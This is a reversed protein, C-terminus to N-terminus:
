TSLINLHYFLILVKDYNFSVFVETATNEGTIGVDITADSFVEGVACDVLLHELLFVNFMLSFHVILHSVEHFLQSPM